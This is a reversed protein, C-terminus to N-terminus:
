ATNERAGRIEKGKVAGNEDIEYVHVEGTAVEVGTVDEDSIKDLYKILARLTNGHAAIIV